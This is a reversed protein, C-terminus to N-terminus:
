GQPAGPRTALQVHLWWGSGATVKNDGQPLAHSTSLYRAYWLLSAPCVTPCVNSSAALKRFYGLADDYTALYFDDGPKHGLVSEPTPVEASAALTLLLLVSIKM